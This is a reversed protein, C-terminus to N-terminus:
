APGGQDRLIAFFREAEIAVSPVPVIDLERCFEALERDRVRSAVAAVGFLARAVQATMLNVSDCGTVAAFLVAADVKARKLTAFEVANGEITFGSFGTPLEAFADANRDIIIVSYGSESLSGALYAGLRGSGVIVAHSNKTRM